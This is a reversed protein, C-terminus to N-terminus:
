LIKPGVIGREDIFYADWKKEILQSKFFLYHVREEDEREEMYSPKRHALQFPM